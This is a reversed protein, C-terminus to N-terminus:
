TSKLNEAVGGKMKNRQVNLIQVFGFVMFFVGFGMGILTSCKLPTLIPTSEVVMMSASALFLIFGAINIVMVDRLFDYGLLLIVLRCCLSSRGPIWWANM